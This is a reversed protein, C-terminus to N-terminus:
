SGPTFSFAGTSLLTVEFTLAEKYPVGENFNSLQMTANITSGNPYEIVTAGQRSSGGAFWDTKLVDDKTVGSLTIEVSDEGSADLLTKYGSDDDTTIDIPSDNLKIKKERLGVVYSGKWKVKVARGLAASM